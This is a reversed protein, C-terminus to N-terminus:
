GGMKESKVQAVNVPSLAGDFREPLPLSVGKIGMELIICEAKRLAINNVVTLYPAIADSPMNLWDDFGIWGEISFQAEHTAEYEIVNRDTDQVKLSAKYNINIVIVSPKEPIDLGISFGSTTETRLQVQQPEKSPFAPACTARESVLRVQSLRADIFTLKKTPKTSNKSM